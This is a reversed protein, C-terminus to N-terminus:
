FLGLELFAGAQVDAAPLDLVPEGLVMYRQRRLNWGARLRVGLTADGFVVRSLALAAELAPNVRRGSSSMDVAVAAGEIRTRHLAGGLGSSLELGLGIELAARMSLRATIDTFRGVFREDLLSLGPGGEFGAALGLHNEFYAPWVSLGLGLRAEIDGANTPRLTAGASAEFRLSRRERPGPSTAAFREGPPAVNSHRLLTKISLAVAAATPEDFPPGSPLRRAASRGSEADYLWLAFADGDRSVWVVAGVRRESAIERARDGSSPMTAGPPPTAVTVVGLKWPSLATVVARLLTPDPDVVAVSDAAASSGLPGALLAGVLLVERLRFM